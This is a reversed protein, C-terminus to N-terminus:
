YYACEHAACCPARTCVKGTAVCVQSATCVLDCEPDGCLGPVSTTTKTPQTKTTTKAPKTTTSYVEKGKGCKVPLEYVVVDLAYKSETGTIYYTYTHRGVTPIVESGTLLEEFEEVSLDKGDSAIFVFVTGEEVEITTNHVLGHQVIFYEPGDYTPRYVDYPVTDIQNQELNEGDVAKFSEIEAYVNSKLPIQSKELADTIDHYYLEYGEQKKENGFFTVSSDLDGRIYTTCPTPYGKETDALCINFKLTASVGINRKNFVLYQRPGNGPSSGSEGTKEGCNCTLTDYVYCREDKNVLLAEMTLGLTEPDPNISPNDFCQLPHNRQAVNHFWETDNANERCLQWEEYIKEVFNHNLFFIPDFAAYALSAMSGGVTVHISGHANELIPYFEVFDHECKANDMQSKYAATNFTGPNRNTNANTAPNHGFSWPNTLDLTGMNSILHIWNSSPETWDWYPLGLNPDVLFQALANELQMVYATHWSPFLPNGHQCCWHSHGHYQATAVYGSSKLATLAQNLDAIEEPTL